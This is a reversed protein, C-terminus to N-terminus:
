ASYAKVRGFFFVYWWFMWNVQSLVEMKRKLVLQTGRRVENDTKFGPTVSSASTLVSVFLVDFKGFLCYTGKVAFNV